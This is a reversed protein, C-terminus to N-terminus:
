ALDLSRQGLQDTGGLLPDLGEPAVAQQPGLPELLHEGVECGAAGLRQQVFQPREVIGIFPRLGPVAGALTVLVGFLSELSSQSSWQPRCMRPSRIPTPFPPPRPRM